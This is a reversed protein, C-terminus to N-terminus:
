DGPWFLVTAFLVILGGVVAVGLSIALGTMICGAWGGQPDVAWGTGWWLACLLMGFAGTAVVRWNRDRIPLM